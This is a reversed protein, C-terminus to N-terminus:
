CRSPMRQSGARGSACVPHMINLLARACVKDNMLSPLSERLLTFSDKIHDRRKRELSNHHARKDSKDPDSGIMQAMPMPIRFASSDEQCLDVLQLFIADCVMFAGQSPMQTVPLGMQGFMM